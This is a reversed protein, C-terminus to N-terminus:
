SAHFLTYVAFHAVTFDATSELATVTGSFRMDRQVRNAAADFLTDGRQRFRKNSDQVVHAHADPGYAQTDFSWWRCFNIQKQVTGSQHHKRECGANTSGVSQASM